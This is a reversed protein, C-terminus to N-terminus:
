GADQHYNRYFVCRFRGTVSFSGFYSLENHFTGVYGAWTVQVPAPKMAFVRLRNGNTHGALDVLININDRFVIESVEEDDIEHIDRFVDVSECIRKTIHDESIVDSYCFIEFSNRDHLM